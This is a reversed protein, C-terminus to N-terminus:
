DGDDEAYDLWGSQFAEAPTEGVYDLNDENLEAFFDSVPPFQYSAAVRDVEALWEAPWPHKPLQSIKVLPCDSEIVPLGRFEQQCPSHSTKILGCQNGHTPVLLPLGDIGAFMGNMGYYRCDKNSVSRVESKQSRVELEESM